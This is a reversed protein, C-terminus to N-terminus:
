FLIRPFVPNENIPSKQFVLNQLEKSNSITMLVLTQMTRLVELLKAEASSDALLLRVSLQMKLSLVGLDQIFM